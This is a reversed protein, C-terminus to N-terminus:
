AALGRVVDVATAADAAFADAGIERAFADTV